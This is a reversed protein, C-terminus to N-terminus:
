FNAGPGDVQMTMFDGAAAITRDGRAVLEPFTTEVGRFSPPDSGALRAVAGKAFDTCLNFQRTPTLIDPYLQTQLTAGPEIGRALV